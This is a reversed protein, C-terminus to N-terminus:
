LHFVKEKDIYFGRTAQLFLQVMAGGVILPLTHSINQEKEFNLLCSGRDTSDDLYTNRVQAPIRCNFVMGLNSTSRGDIWFLEPHKDGYEYLDKRISMGDPGSLIVDFNKFDKKTMFRPVADIAYKDKMINVKKKGLDESTYNQHLLNSPSVEASDYVTIETELYSFQKRNYGYDHLFHIAWAGVGGAGIIGIKKYKLPEQM